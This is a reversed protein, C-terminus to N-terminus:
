ASARLQGAMEPHAALLEDRSVATGQKLAELYEDLVRVVELVSRNSDPDASLYPETPIDRQGQEPQLPADSHM